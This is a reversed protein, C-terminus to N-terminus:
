GIIPHIQLQKDLDPDFTYPLPPESVLSTREEPTTEEIIVNDPTLTVDSVDLDPDSEGCTAENESIRNPDSVSPKLSM